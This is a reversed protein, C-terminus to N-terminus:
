EKGDERNLRDMVWEKLLEYASLKKGRRKSERELVKELKRYEDDKFYVSVWKGMVGVMILYECKYPYYINQCLMHLFVYIIKTLIIFLMYFPPAWTM